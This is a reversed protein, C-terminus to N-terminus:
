LSVTPLEPESIDVFRDSEEILKHGELWELFDVDTQPKYSKRLAQM